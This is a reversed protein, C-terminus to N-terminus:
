GEEPLHKMIQFLPPNNPILMGRVDFSPYGVTNRPFGAQDLKDMFKEGVGPQRDVVYEVYRIGARAFEGRKAECSECGTISYMILQSHETLMVEPNEVMLNDAALYFVLGAFLLVVFYLKGKIGIM